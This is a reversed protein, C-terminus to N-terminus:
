GAGGATGELTRELRDILEAQATLLKERAVEPAFWEARDVEPFSQMRGSRPPWEMAFTNSRMTAVDFDGEAAFAHVRRGGRQVITGLPVLPGAPAAGLEEAFERLAAAEPDEGALLEGKPISWAGLDKRRWFPGGPHALLVLLAGAEHRFLLLGASEVTM